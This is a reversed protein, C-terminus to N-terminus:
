WDFFSYKVQERHKPDQELAEVERPFLALGHQKWKTLKMHFNAHWGENDDRPFLSWHSMSRREKEDPDLRVYVDQRGINPLEPKKTAEKGTQATTPVNKEVDDNGKGRSGDSPEGHDVKEEELPWRHIETQSINIWRGAEQGKQVGWGFITFVTAVSMLTVTLIQTFLTAQGIAVIHVALAIWGVARALTYWWAEWSHSPAELADLMFPILGRHTRSVAVRQDPLTIILKVMEEKAHVPRQEEVHKGSSMPIRTNGILQGTTTDGSAIVKHFKGSVRLDLFSRNARLLFNRVWSAVLMAIANALGYWDGQLAALIALASTFSFGVVFSLIERGCIGRPKDTVTMRLITYKYRLNTALWRTIWGNLETAKIGDTLNYLEFGAEPTAFQNAAVKYAGFIPLYDTLTNRTLSGVKRAVEDAGLLTVLGLADLRFPAWKYLAQHLPYHLVMLTNGIIFGFPLLLFAFCLLRLTIPVHLDLYCLGLRVSLRRRKRGVVLRVSASLTRVLTLM